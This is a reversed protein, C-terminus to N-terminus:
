NEGEYGMGVGGKKKLFYFDGIKQLSFLPLYCPPLLLGHPTHPVGQSGEPHPLTGAGGLVSGEDEPGQHSWPNGQELWFAQFHAKNHSHQVCIQM